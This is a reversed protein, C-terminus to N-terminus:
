EHLSCCEKGTQILQGNNPYSKGSTLENEEQFPYSRKTTYRSRRKFSIIDSFALEM